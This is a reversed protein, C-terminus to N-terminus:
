VTPVYFPRGLESFCKRGLFWIYRLPLNILDLGVSAVERLLLCQRFNRYGVYRYNIVPVGQWNM